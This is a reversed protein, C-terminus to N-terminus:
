DNFSTLFEIFAEYTMEGSAYSDWAKSLDLSDVSGNGDLDGPTVISYADAYAADIDGNANRVATVVGVVKDDDLGLNNNDFFVSLSGDDNKFVFAQVQQQRPEGNDMDRVYVEVSSPDVPATFAIDYTFGENRQMEAGQRRPNAPNVNVNGVRGLCWTLLNNAGKYCAERRAGEGNNKDCDALLSQFCDWCGGVKPPSGLNACPGAEGIAARQAVQSLATGCLVAVALFSLLASRKM